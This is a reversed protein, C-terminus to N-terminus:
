KVASSFSTGHGTERLTKFFRQMRREAICRLAAMLIRSQLMEQERQDVIRIRGLDHLGATNIQTIQAIDNALVEILFILGQLRLVLGVWLWCGAELAHDLAGDEM